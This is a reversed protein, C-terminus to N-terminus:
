AEPEIGMRKLIGLLKQRARFLLVRVSKEKLKLIKAIERHEQEEVYALWVLARQMPSLKAFAEHLDLRSEVKDESHGEANEEAEGLRWEDRRKQRRWHDHILNTAIRYLYAKMQPENLEVVEAHLFRIYSEQSIDDTLSSDGVVRFVYAWLAKQTKDYFAQFISEDKM